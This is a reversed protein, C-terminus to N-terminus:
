KAVAPVSNDNMPLVGTMFNKAESPKEILEMFLKSYAESYKFEDTYEEKKVFILRGGIEVKKGYSALILNEFLEVIQPVSNESIRSSDINKSEAFDEPSKLGVLKTLKEVYGGVTGLQMKMVEAKTLNFYFDETVEIGEFNTYTITKKLM